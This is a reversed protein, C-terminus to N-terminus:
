VSGTWLWWPGLRFEPLVTMALTPRLLEVVTSMEEVTINKIKGVRVITMHLWQFPVPPHLGAHHYVQAYREAVARLHHQNSFRFLFHWDTEGPEWSTTLFHDRAMGCM